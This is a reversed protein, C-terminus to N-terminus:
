GATTYATLHVRRNKMFASESLGTDLPVEEGYSITELRNRSVGYSTMADLVAQARRAGLALNYEATGREDCHGELTVKVQPNQELVQVNYEIASRADASLQSSDYDFRVDRFIGEGEATPINGEGFRNERNLDLDSESMGLGDQGGSLGDGADKSSCASAFLVVLCLVLIPFRVVPFNKMTNMIEDSKKMMAAESWRFAM